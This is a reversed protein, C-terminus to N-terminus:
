PRLSVVTDCPRAPPARGRRRDFSDRVAPERADVRLNVEQGGDVRRDTPGPGDCKRFDSVPEPCSCSTPAQPDSSMPQEEANSSQIGVKSIRAGDDSGYTCMNVGGVGGTPGPSRVTPSISPIPGTKVPCSVALPTRSTLSNTASGGSRMASIREMETSRARFRRAFARRNSSSYGTRPREPSGHYREGSSCLERRDNEHDGDHEHSPQQAIRQARSGDRAPDFAHSRAHAAVPAHCRVGSRRPRVTEDRCRKANPCRAGRRFPQGRFLWQPVRLSRARARVAPVRQCDCAHRAQLDAGHSDSPRIATTRRTVSAAVAGPAGDAVTQADFHRLSGDHMGDTLSLPSDLNHILRARRRTSHSALPPSRHTAARRRAQRQRRSRGPPIGPNIVAPRRSSERSRLHREHIKM